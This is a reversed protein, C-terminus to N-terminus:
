QDDRTYDPIAPTKPYTIRLTAASAKIKAIAARQIASILQQPPIDFNDIDNLLQLITTTDTKPCPIYLGQKLTCTWVTDAQQQAMAHNQLLAAILLAISTTTRM